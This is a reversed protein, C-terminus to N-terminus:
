YTHDFIYSVFVPLQANLRSAFFDLEPHFNFKKPHAEM